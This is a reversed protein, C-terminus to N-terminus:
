SGSTDVNIRATRPDYTTRVNFARQISGIGIMVHGRVRFPEHGLTLPTGDLMAHKDGLRMQLSHDGRIMTVRGTAEDFRLQAHLADAISRIPVFIRDPTTVPPIELNVRQGDVYMEAPRSFVLLASAVLAVIATLLITQWAPARYTM